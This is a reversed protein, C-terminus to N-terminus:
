ADSYSGTEQVNGDFQTESDDQTEPALIELVISSKLRPYTTMRILSCVMVGERPVHLQRVLRCVLADLQYLLDQRILGADAAM